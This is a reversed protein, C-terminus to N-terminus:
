RCKPEGEGTWGPPAHTGVFVGCISRTDSHTLVAAWGTSGASVIDMSVGEPGEWELAHRNESYSMSDAFYIEQAVVLNRMASRMLEIMAAPNGPAEEETADSPLPAAAAWSSSPATDRTREIGYMRVFNVDNADRWRGLVFDRGIHHVEFRLPTEIVASFRAHDDFVLWLHGQAGRPIPERIWVDNDSSVRAFRYAPEGPPVPVQDLMSRVLEKRAPTLAGDVWYQRYLWVDFPFDPDDAVEASYTGTFNGFGDFVSVRNGAMDLALISDTSLAYV